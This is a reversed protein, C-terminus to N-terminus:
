DTRNDPVRNRDTEEFYMDWFRDSDRWYADSRNWYEASGQESRRQPDRWYRDSQRWYLDSRQWAFIGDHRNVWRTPSEAFFDYSRMEGARAQSPAQSTQTTARQAQAQTRQEQVYRQYEPTSFRVRWHERYLDYMGVRNPDWTPDQYPIPPRDQQPDQLRDQQQSQELQTNQRQQPNQNGPQQQAAAIGGIVAITWLAALWSFDLRAKM